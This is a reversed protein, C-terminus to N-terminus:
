KKDFGLKAHARDWVSSASSKTTSGAGEDAGAEVKPASGAESALRNLMDVGAKGAPLKGLTAIIKEATLDAALLEAAAAERGVVNEHAFVKEIREGMQARGAALAAESHQAGAEPAGSGEGEGEGADGEDGTAETSAGDGSGDTDTNLEGEGEGDGNAGGDDGNTDAVNEAEGEPKGGSSDDSILASAARSLALASVGGLARHFRMNM